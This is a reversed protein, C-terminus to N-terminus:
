SASPGKEGAGFAEVTVDQGTNGTFTVAGRVTGPPYTFTFESVASNAVAAPGAAQTYETGGSTYNWRFTVSCGITPGTGGNTVKATVTNNYSASIDVESGTTTGAAANTASAQFTYNAVQRDGAAM